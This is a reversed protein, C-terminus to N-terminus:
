RSGRNPMQVKARSYVKLLEGQFLVKIYGYLTQVPLNVAAKSLYCFWFFISVWIDMLLQINLIM